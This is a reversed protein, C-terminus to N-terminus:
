KSETNSVSSLITSSGTSPKCTSIEAAGACSSVITFRKGESQTSEAPTMLPRLTQRASKLAM